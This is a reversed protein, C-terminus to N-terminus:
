AHHELDTEDYYAGNFTIHNVQLIKLLWGLWGIPLPLKEGCDYVDLNMGYAHKEGMDSTLYLTLTATLPLHATGILRKANSFKLEGVKTTWDWMYDLGTVATIEKVQEPTLHFNDCLYEKTRDNLWNTNMLIFTAGKTKWRVEM